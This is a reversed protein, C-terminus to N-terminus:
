EDLQEVSFELLDYHKYPEEIHKKQSYEMAQDRKADCMDKTGSFCQGIGNIHCHMMIAQAKQEGLNFVKNLVVVVADFHTRHNNHLLVRYQKPKEIKVNIKNKKKINTNTKTSM